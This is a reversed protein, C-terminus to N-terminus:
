ERVFKLQANGHQTDIAFFYLGSTLASVDVIRQQSIRGKLVSRGYLDYITYANGIVDINSNVTISQKTPNPYLSFSAVVETSIGTNVSQDADNNLSDTSYFVFIATEGSATSNAWAPVNTVPIANGQAVNNVDAKQRGVAIIGKNTKYLGFLETNDGGSQTLTDWQGVVLSSYKPYSLTNNYMRVFSNWCSKGGWTPKVMKQYANKTTITRRGIGLICVDGNSSVKINNKTIYTTNVDPWGTNPDPWGDLNPDSHASGLGGTGEALEAVYSSSVLDGTALTFKGLWSEHINGNTGTFRNQFGKAASNGAITNGEWLNEVNNGHARAAVVLNNNTYDIALADVYQDPLSGVTDGAPTIEHYLRSWWMLSGSSDFAIVAPEFDPSNAPNFYSKFNMGLYVSNNRKNVVVSSAGWVPCCSEPSYGTYGPTTATPNQPDCPSNFLFDAPWKGKKTGGNGDSQVLNYDTANWSRLECRGGIKFVVGSYNVSDVTNFQNASAPTGKWETGNKLWHTRWNTVVRRKGQNNLCYMASWDYAHSQGSVYYVDGTSTVDWPHTAKAYNKAWVASFWSLSNPVGNVFNNNLKAIIYGGNNADIDSTNCSIYLDGTTTYPLNTSKIFRIDEVAGQPFHVLQLVTQMDASLQMLFGYKNTGQANPIIGTFSLQTKPVSSGVWNLDQAYGSLLFTGDSLATVDYFCERGTNGAYAVINQQAFSFKACLLLAFLLLRTM